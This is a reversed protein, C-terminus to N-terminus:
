MTSKWGTVAVHHFEAEFLLNLLLFLSPPLLFLSEIVSQGTGNQIKFALM